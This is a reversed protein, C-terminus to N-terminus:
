PPEAGGGGFQKTFDIPKLKKQPPSLLQQADGRSYFFHLGWSRGKDWNHFISYYYKSAFSASVNLNNVSGRLIEGLECNVRWRKPKLKM